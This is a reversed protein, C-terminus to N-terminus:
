LLSQPRPSAAGTGVGSSCPVHGGGSLIGALFFLRSPLPGSALFPRADRCDFSRASPGGAQAVHWHLCVRLTDRATHNPCRGGPGGGLLETPKCTDRSMLGSSAGWFRCLIHLLPQLLQQPFHPHWQLSRPMGRPRCQPPLEAPNLELGRNRDM